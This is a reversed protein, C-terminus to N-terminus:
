VQKHFHPDSLPITAPDLGCRGSALGQVVITHNPEPAQKYTPHHVTRERPRRWASSQGNM